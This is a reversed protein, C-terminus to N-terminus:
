QLDEPKFDRVCRFGYWDSKPSNSAYPARSTARGEAAIWNWSSGKLVRRLTRDQPSQYGENSRETYVTSTWEWLNGAMDYAGVWSRGAEFSGVPARQAYGDNVQQNRWNFECNQDCINLPASGLENGWPFLLGDPGRAAYEWESERPLRGGRQACMAQAEDWTVNNLPVGSGPTQSVEYQDIWFPETFTVEWQTSEDDLNPCNNRALVTECLRYGYNIQEQSAGMRFKGSPVLVMPVGEITREIPQWDANHAAPGTFLSTVTPAASTQTPTIEQTTSPPPTQTASAMNLPLTSAIVGIIVGLLVLGGFGVVLKNQWGKSAPPRPAPTAPKFPVTPPPSGPHGYTQSPPHQPIPTGLPFGRRAFEYQLRQLAIDYPQTYFDVYQIRSLQFHIKTPRLLIPIVPKNNDLYYQWEDEVNRSTMSEPSILVILVEATDLGQQIASSWKMGAPIDEIDLWIDAGMQSLSGALQRAFREDTRSYSLFIRTM